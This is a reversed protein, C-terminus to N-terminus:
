DNTPAECLHKDVTREADLWDDLECGPAFGRQEARCYAEAAILEQRSRTNCDTSAVSADPAPRAANPPSLDGPSRAANRPETRASKM